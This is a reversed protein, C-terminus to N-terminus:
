KQLLTGFVSFFALKANLFHRYVYKKREISFAIANEIKENYKSFM